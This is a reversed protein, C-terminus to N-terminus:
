EFRDMTNPAVYDCGYSPNVDPGHASCVLDNQEYCYDPDTPDIVDPDCQGGKKNGQVKVSDMLVYTCDLDYPDNDCDLITKQACDQGPVNMGGVVTSRCSWAVPLVGMGVPTKCRAEAVAVPSVQPFGIIGAFFTDKQVTATVVVTASSLSAYVDPPNVAGNSVAYTEATTIGGSEDHNKCM